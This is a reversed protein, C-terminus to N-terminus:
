QIMTMGYPEAGVSARSKPSEFAWEVDDRGLSDGSLELTESSGDEVDLKGNAEDEIEDLKATGEVDTSSLELMEAWGLPDELM